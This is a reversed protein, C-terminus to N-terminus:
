IAIPAIRSVSLWSGGYDTGLATITGSHSSWYNCYIQDGNYLRAVATMLLNTGETGADTNGARKDSCLSNAFVSTGNLMIKGARQGVASGGTVGFREQLTLTYTGPVQITVYSPFAPDWMDGRTDFSAAQWNVVLDTSAPIATQSSTRVVKCSVGLNDIEMAVQNFASASPVTGSTVRPMAMASM